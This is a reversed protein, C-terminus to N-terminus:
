RYRTAALFGGTIMGLGLFLYLNKAGGPLVGLYNTVIVIMGLGLLGFMVIPVWIPSVKVERPIPPTYRGQPAPQGPRRPPQTGKAAGRGSRGEAAPLLRLPSIRAPPGRRRERPESRGGGSPSPPGLGM